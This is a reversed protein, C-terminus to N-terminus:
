TLYAEDTTALPGDLSALDQVTGDLETQTEKLQQQLVSRRLCLFPVSFFRHVYVLGFGNRMSAECYQVPVLRKAPLRLSFCFSHLQTWFLKSVRYCQSLILVGLPLM